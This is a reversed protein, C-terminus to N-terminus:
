AKRATDPLTEAKRALKLARGECLAKAVKVHASKVIRDFTQRSVGMQKSAETHYMGVADALRLAEMEDAALEIEELERLPIGAPKFYDSPPVHTIHRPCQPRAM